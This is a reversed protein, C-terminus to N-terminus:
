VPITDPSYKSALAALNQFKKRYAAPSLGVRKKFIRRFSSSDEYGVATAIDDIQRNDRELEQKAEEIRLAQVYDMPTYGTASRFRRAFTRASLGSREVMREVPNSCEYNEAIWSQCEAILADKVEMPRTMVAYPSQGEVHDTMLFVKATDVAHRYGCFRAILYFALDHWASVAGATVIGASEAKLCLASNEVFTVKPYYRHFMDRYAWHATAERGELIGSDALVLSGSCVSSVLVGAAHIERLWACERPYRGTPVATVAVYMDCVIVADPRKGPTALDNLSLHPKVPIDGVCNFPQGDASAIQVELLEREPAGKVLEPYVGGVTTLVDYLGYLVMASTEPSALLVIKPRRQSSKRNETVKPVTRDNHALVMTLDRVNEDKKGSDESSVRDLLQDM